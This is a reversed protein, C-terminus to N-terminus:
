RDLLANLADKDELNVAPEGLDRSVWSFPPVDPRREERLGRALLQSALEGISKRERRSRQRLEHMVSPDLNLTTRAMQHKISVAKADLVRDYQAREAAARRREVESKPPKAAQAMSPRYRRGPEVAASPKAIIRAHLLLKVDLDATVKLALEHDRALGAGRRELLYALAGASTRRGSLLERGELGLM